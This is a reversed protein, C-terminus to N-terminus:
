CIVEKSKALNQCNTINMAAEVGDSIFLGCAQVAMQVVRDIIEKEDGYFPSLVYEEIPEGYRPRGIGLKIRPFQQTGLHQIISSVGKHGGAGGGRVVRIRGVPLDIDDHIILIREPTVRFFDVCAKISLGSHNMYTLPRILIIEQGKYVTWTYRSQFRRGTLATNFGKALQRVVRFGLNHRTDRYKRGPNGLGGIVYVKPNGAEGGKKSSM